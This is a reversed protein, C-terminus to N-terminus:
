VFFTPARGSQVFAAVPLISSSLHFLLLGDIGAEKDTFDTFDTAIKKQAVLPIRVIQTGYGSSDHLVPNKLFRAV